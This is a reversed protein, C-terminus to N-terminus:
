RHGADNACDNTQIVVIAPSTNDALIGNALIAQWNQSLTLYHLTLNINREDFNSIIKKLLYPDVLHVATAPAIAATITITVTAVNSTGNANALTFQFSDTGLFCATLTYSVKTKSIFKVVGNAPGSVITASTPNGTAGASLDIPVPTGASTSVAQAMAVPALPSPTVTITATASNSTGSANAFTFQFSATGSFGTTPTFTVTTAPFGTVTGGTPTGVLAASTPNGSAGATLDITVPTNATTAATENV